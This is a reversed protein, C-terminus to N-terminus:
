IGVSIDAHADILAFPTPESYTLEYIRQIAKGQNQLEIRTDYDGGAGLDFWEEASYTRGGDDSYRIMLKPDSGQGSAIGEGTQLVFEVRDFFLEKGPANYLGGHIAATSRRRQIVQGNDTYTDFDLEYMKGNTHDAMLNKGYAFVHSQARHRQNDTGYSLQYWSNSVEHYLWTKSASPFTLQYFNTQGLTFAFGVADDVRSYKQWEEGLAPNGINTVQLGFMRRPIRENDLFYLFEDSKDLSWKAGLGYSRYAGQVEDFPPSGVGSNWWPEIGETGFFYVMENYIIARSIDDPHAAAEAFDLSNVFDDVTLPGSLQSTVFEGQESNDDNNDLVFQSNIYAITTPNNVNNDTIEALVDTSETYMYPKGGTVIVLQDGNNAFDCMNVGEVTGKNTVTGDSNVLVLEEDFVAYALGNM